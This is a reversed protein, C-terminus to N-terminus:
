MASSSRTSEPAKAPQGLSLAWVAWSTGAASIWQHRGHPFGSEKYPQFPFSRTRVLWSGDDMQTRLLYAAGRQWAADSPSLRGATMLAVMAQGTAYADSEIAPLQAWGGDPRQEALLAQAPARMAEAGANAWSLGLLQWTRDENSHPKAAALWQRARQVRPEPDKGYVQLARLSLATATFTSYELPPRGPLVIFSGDPLQQLSVLHAMAATTADPAYGEAALGVLAYSVSVAPDPINQKGALMDPVAPKFTAIAAKVNYEAITKDVAFGRTRAVSYAMQPLQQNHCSACGSVKVFQPGSKQLLGIAKEVSDRVMATDSAGAKKLAEVVPTYGRRLAWTLASDGGKNKVNPDAGLALLKEVLAADGSEDYAAWMLPTSGSDDALHIDAGKAIMAEAMARNRHMVAFFLATRGGIFRGENPSAGSDLLRRVADTNNGLAAGILPTPPTFDPIQAFACLAGAFLASLCRNLKM